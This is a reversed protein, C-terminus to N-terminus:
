WNLDKEYGWEVLTQGAIQKFIERDRSTFLNCWSGQRGKEVARVLESAKTKQWDADPNRRMEQELADRLGPLSVSAGLFEWLRVMQEWPESLLDEFRLSIYRNGYIERGLCDTESVNRRWNQASQVIGRETFLSREGQLFPKPDRSFEERIRLDEKTLHHSADIFTQFRHSLVADRGDRVIYIFRAEPYIKSMLRVSEGHLLSNPSKDGVISKGLTRAEREIIFDAVVRLVLPSPDRGHNWRNSRRSLWEGVEPAAVLAYLTPQRTFFHAQYNCHVQPHLRILRVLLTTGSRAHGFIFFKELPFFQKVEAIEEPTIAPVDEFERM